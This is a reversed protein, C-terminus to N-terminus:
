GFVSEYRQGLRPCRFPAEWRPRGRIGPGNEDRAGPTRASTNEYKLFELVNLESPWITRGVSRLSGTVKKYVAGDLLEGYCNGDLIVLTSGAEATSKSCRPWCPTLM